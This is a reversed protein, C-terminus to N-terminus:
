GGGDALVNAPKHKSHTATPKPKGPAPLPGDPAPALGPGPTLDPPYLGQPAPPATPKQPKVGVRIVRTEAEYVDDHLKEKKLLQGNQSVAEWLTAKAGACGPNDVVRQGPALSSDQITQTDGSWKSYNTVTLQVAYKDAANGVVAAWLHDGRLEGLIVITHQLSNRLRLDHQGWYVTADRGAPCYHVPRSHHDRELVDLNALLAANYLTSAVQCIGGGTDPIVKGERFIPASRYGDDVTREGVTQNLSFEQGPKLAVGNVKTIALEMNHTRDVQSSEYPTSFAALVTQLGALAEPSINPPQQKVVLNVHATQPNRLAQALAAASQKVLLATGTQGPSKELENNGNVSVKADRPARNVQPALAALLSELRFEDVRVPASLDQGAGSRLMWQTKLRDLLGPERGVTLAQQVAQLLDFSVGLQDRTYTVSGGPYDLEVQAATFPALGRELAAQAQAATMGGVALGGITVHPAIKDGSAFGTALAAVALGAVLLLVVLSVVIVGAVIAARRRPQRRGSSPRTM